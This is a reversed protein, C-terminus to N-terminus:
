REYLVKFDLPVYYIGNEGAERDFLTGPGPEMVIQKIRHGGIIGKFRRLLTEVEGALGEAAIVSPSFATFNVRPFDVDLDHHGANNVVSYTMAPYTLSQPLTNPFIRQEATTGQSILYDRLARQIM